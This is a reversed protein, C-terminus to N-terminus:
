PLFGPRANYWRTLIGLYGSSPSVGICLFIATFGKDGSFFM